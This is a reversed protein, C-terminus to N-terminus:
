WMFMFGNEQILQMPMNSVENDELSPYKINVGRVPARGVLKWPPDMMIVEFLRGGSLKM